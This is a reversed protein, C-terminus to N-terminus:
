AGKYGIQINNHKLALDKKKKAAEFGEMSFPPKKFSDFFSM